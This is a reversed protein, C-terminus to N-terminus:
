SALLCLSHLLTLWLMALKLYASRIYLLGGSLTLGVLWVLDLRDCCLLASSTPSSSCLLCALMYFLSTVSRTNTKGPCEALKAILRRALQGKVESRRGTGRM